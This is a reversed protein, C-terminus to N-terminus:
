SNPKMKEMESKLLELLARVRDIHMKTGRAIDKPSADPNQEVFKKVKAYDQFDRVSTLTIRPTSTMRVSTRSFTKEPTKIAPHTLQPRVAAEELPEHRREFCRKVVHFIPLNEINDPAEVVANKQRMFDYLASYPYESFISLAGIIVLKKRARTLAVNLKRRDKLAIHLHHEKYVPHWATSYIIVDREKGQFANVTAASLDETSLVLDEDAEHGLEHIARRIIQRQLRYPTIISVQNESVGAQILENRIIIALTAEYENFYSRHGESIEIWGSPDDYKSSDVCVLPKTNITGPVTERQPKSTIQIVKRYCSEHSVLKGEYFHKSSFEMIDPHSRYQVNLLTSKSKGYNDYLLEFLSKFAYSEVPVQPLQEPKVKTIPPLQKHDGVLIYNKGCLLGVLALPITAMSCEDIIVYDFYPTVWSLKNTMILMSVKSLTAGVISAARLQILEGEKKPVLDRLKESVKTLLGLRVCSKKLDYINEMVNDVAVNTHSTILVRKKMSHLQRVIETIVTTKGTGPPGHILYFPASRPLTLSNVVARKQSENLGSNFFSFNGISTEYSSVDSGESIISRLFMVHPSDCSALFEVAKSQIQLLQLADAEVIRINHSPIPRDTILYYGHKKSLWFSGYLTMEPTEIEVWSGEDIAIEQDYPFSIFSYFVNEEKRSDRVRAFYRKKSLLEKKAENIEANM